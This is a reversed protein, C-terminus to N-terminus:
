EQGHHGYNYEGPSSHGHLFYILLHEANLVLVRAVEHFPNRVVDHGRNAINWRPAKLHCGGEDAIGGGDLLQELPDTLLESGHEPSLNINDSKDSMTYLKSEKGLSEQM